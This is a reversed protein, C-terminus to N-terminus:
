TKSLKTLRQQLMENMESDDTNLAIAEKYIAEAEDHAGSKELATGLGYWWEVRDPNIYILKKYLRIAAHNRGSEQYLLAKLEYFGLHNQMAPSYRDMLQLAMNSQDTLMYIRAKLEIFPIYEEHLLLGDNIVTLAKELQADEILLAAYSARAKHYDPHALIFQKLKNLNTKHDHQELENMLVSYDEEAIHQQKSIIVPNTNTGHITPQNLTTHHNADIAIVLEPHNKDENFHLYSIISKPLLTLSVLSHDKMNKYQINSVGANIASFEPLTAVFETDEFVINITNSLVDTSIHYLVPHSFSLIIETINEKTNISVGKIAAMQVKSPNALLPSKHFQEGIAMPKIEIISQATLISYGAMLIVITIIMVLAVKSAYHLLAQHKKENLMAVPIPIIHDHRPTKNQVSKLADNILSM